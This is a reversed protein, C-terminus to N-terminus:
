FFTLPQLLFLLLLAPAVRFRGSVDTFVTRWASRKRWLLALILAVFLLAAAYFLIRLQSRMALPLVRLQEFLGFSFCRVPLYGFVFDLMDPFSPLLLFSPQSLLLQEYLPLWRIMWHLDLFPLHHQIFYMLSAMSGVLKQTGSNPFVTGFEQRAYLVWPLLTLFFTIMICVLSKLTVRADNKRRNFLVLLIIFFPAIIMSIRSLTLLGAMMGVLISWKWSEQKSLLSSFALLLLVIILAVLTNEMGSILASQLDYNILWVVSPVIALWPHTFRKLLRFLLFATAVYVASALMLAERIFVIKDTTSFSLATLCLMWLPHFGYTKTIGDFTFIGTSKLLWAPQLYYFADDKMWETALYGPDSLLFFRALFILTVGCLVSLVRGPTLVAPSSGNQIVRDM